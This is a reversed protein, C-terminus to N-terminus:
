VNGILPQLYDEIFDAADPDAICAVYGDPRILVLADAAGYFQAVHGQNDFATAHPNKDHSPGPSICFVKLGGAFREATSRFADLSCRGLSLLTWHPGRFLGFLRLTRGDIDIVSSDPARDGARLRLSVSGHRRSLSSDPYSIGLQLTSADRRLSQEDHASMGRHLRSSIGLVLAAVPLREEEYSDLLSDAGHQLACALKWGLNYADQIGTNMGQGGAPSHVHAADGALFVRGKSYSDVMRSNARYLSLWTAGHLKLDDRGTREDLIRQFTQLSPEAEEDPPV